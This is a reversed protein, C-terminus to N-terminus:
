AASDRMMNWRMAAQDVNGFNLSFSNSHNTSRILSSAGSGNCACAQIESLTEGRELHSPGAQGNGRSRTGLAPKKWISSPRAAHQDFRRLPYKDDSRSKSTGHMRPDQGFRPDLHVYDVLAIMDSAIGIIAEVFSTDPDVLIPRMKEMRVVFADNLPYGAETFEHRILM